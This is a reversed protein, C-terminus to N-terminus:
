PAVERLDASRIRWSRQEATAGDVVARHLVYSGAFRRVSGDAQTARIAVPVEIYRQGAGADQRGPAGLEVSVERTGAFGDAFQQATQGSAQGGDSWLAYARQFQRANIAAYYDRVLAVADAATPEAAGTDAAPPAALPGDGDPDAGLGTEPNVAPPGAIGLEEPSPLSPAPGEGLSPTRDGRRAPAGTVAGEAVPAPLSEPAAADRRADAQRDGCSSLLWVVAILTCALGTRIMGTWIMGTWIMGIPGPGAAAAPQSVPKPAPLRSLPPVNRDTCATDIRDARTM